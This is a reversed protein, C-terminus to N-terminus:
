GGGVSRQGVHGTCLPASLITKPELCLWIDGRAGTAKLCARGAVSVRPHSGGLGWRAPPRLASALGSSTVGCSGPASPAFASDASPAVQFYRKVQDSRLQDSGVPQLVRKGVLPWREPLASGVHGAAWGESAIPDTMARTESCGCSVRLSKGRRTERHTESYNRRWRTWVGCAGTCACVGVVCGSCTRASSTARSGHAPSGQPIAPGTPHLFEERGAARKPTEHQNSFRSIQRRSPALERSRTRSKIKLASNSPVPGTHALKDGGPAPALTVPQM